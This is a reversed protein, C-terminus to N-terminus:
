VKRFFINADVTGFLHVLVIMFWSMNWPPSLLVSRMNYRKHIKWFVKDFNPLNSKQCFLRCKSWPSPYIVLISSLPWKLDSFLQHLFQKFLLSYILSYCYLHLSWFRFLHEQWYYGILAGIFSWILMLSVLLMKLVTGKM